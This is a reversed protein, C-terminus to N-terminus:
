KSLMDDLIACAKSICGACKSGIGKEAIIAKEEPISINYGDLIEKCVISGNEKIFREEFEHVKNILIEDQESSNAKDFGYKYGLTIISATVCGCVNGSFCGGGLGATYKKALNENIELLKAGHEMVCQSCHFGDNLMKRAQDENM